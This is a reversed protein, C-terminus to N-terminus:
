ELESFSSWHMFTFKKCLYWSHMCLLLCCKWCRTYDTSTVNAIQQAIPTDIRSSTQSDAVGSHPIFMVKGGWCRLSKCSARIHSCQLYFCSSVWPWDSYLNPLSNCQKPEWIIYIFMNVNCMLAIINRHSPNPFSIQRFIVSYSWNIIYLKRLSRDSSLFSLHVVIIFAVKSQQERSLFAAVTCFLAHTSGGLHHNWKKFGFYEKM